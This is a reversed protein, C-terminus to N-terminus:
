ATVTSLASLGTTDPLADYITISQIAIVNNDLTIVTAVLPNGDPRETPGIVGTVPDSGNVALEARSGAITVALQNESGTGENTVTGTNVGLSGNWSYIRGYRHSPNEGDIEIADNGNAAMIAMGFFQHGDQVAKARVVGTFEALSKSLLTGLFALPQGDSRVYGDATLSGADYGSTSWGNVTNPDSGLLTDIAVLGDAETWARNNVLDIYIKANTPVWDPVDGGGGFGTNIDLAGRGCMDLVDQAGLNTGLASNIQRVMLHPDLLADKTFIASGHAAEIEKMMRWTDLKAWTTLETM